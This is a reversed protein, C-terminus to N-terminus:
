DRILFEQSAVSVELEDYALSQAADAAYPLDTPMTALQIPWIRLATEPGSTTIYLICTNVNQPITTSAGAYQLHRPRHGLTSELM